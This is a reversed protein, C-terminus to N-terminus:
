ILELQKALKKSPVNKKILADNIIEMILSAFSNGSLRLIAGISTFNEDASLGCQANVELVYLKGTKSDMRVDVRGYGKGKLAKYADFSIKCINHLLLADPTQYNYFDEENKVPIEDEYMEWLRDFSLFKEHPPLSAHFVREAPLYIKCERPSSGNGVILTTFEPGDIFQEAFVGGDALNWGHYGEQLKLYQAELEECNKVVSLIGVGMSGGSIAPKVILPSGLEEFISLHNKNEDTVIKWSATSINKLDFVEKMYIKSTTIKYFYEDAGTFCLSTKKLYKIVNVGPANNINDGDCLNLVVINETLACESIRDIFWKYNDNTVQQWKWEIGLEEFIRTYEVISQTFDYYYYLNENHTEVYPALVWVFLDKPFPIM